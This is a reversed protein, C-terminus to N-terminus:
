AARRRPIITTKPIETQIAVFRPQIKPSVAMPLTQTLTESPRNPALVPETNPLAEPLYRTVTHLWAPIGFLSLLACARLWWAGLSALHALQPDHSNSWVLCMVSTVFCCCMIQLAQPISYTYRVAEQSYRSFLLSQSMGWLAIAPILLLQSLYWSHHMWSWIGVAVCTTLILPVFMRFSVSVQQALLLLVMETVFFLSVIAQLHQPHERRELEWQDWQLGGINATLQQLENRFKRLLAGQLVNSRTHVQLLFQGQDNAIAQLTLLSLDNLEPPTANTYPTLEQLNHWVSSAEWQVARQKWIQFTRLWRGFYINLDPTLYEKPLSQQLTLCQAELKEFYPTFRTPSVNQGEIYVALRSITQQKTASRVPFYAAGNEVALVGPILAIQEQLTYAQEVSDCAVTLPSVSKRYMHEVYQEFDASAINSDSYFKWQTINKIGVVATVCLLTVVCCTVWPARKTIAVMPLWGIIKEVPEHTDGSLVTQVAPHVCLAMITFLPIGCAFTIGIERWFASENLLLSLFGMTVSLAFLCCNGGLKLLTQKWAIVPSCGAAKRIELFETQVRLLLAFFWVTLVIQCWATTFTYHGILLTLCGSHCVCGLTLTKIIAAVSRWQNLALCLIFLALLGGLALGHWLSQWRATVQEVQTVVPGTLLLRSDAYKARLTQVIHQLKQMSDIQLAPQKTSTPIQLTVWCGQQNQSVTPKKQLLLLHNQLATNVAKVAQNLEQENLNQLSEETSQGAVQLKQLQERILEPTPASQETLQEQIAQLTSELNQVSHLAKTHQQLRNDLNELAQEPVYHLAKQRLTSFDLGSVVHTFKAGSLLQELETLVVQRQKTDPSEIFVFVQSQAPTGELKTHRLSHLEFDMGTAIFLIALSTLGLVFCVISGAYKHSSAACREALSTAESVREDFSAVRSM